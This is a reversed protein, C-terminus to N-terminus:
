VQSEGRSLLSVSSRVYDIFSAVVAIGVVVWMVELVMRLPLERWYTQIVMLFLAITSAGGMTVTKLKGTRRAALTFGRRALMTRLTAITAERYFMVLLLWLPALRAWMLCLYVSVHCVIDALPDLLKGTPTVTDTRRALLGDVMDTAEQLLLVVLAASLLPASAHGPSWDPQGIGLVILIVLLPSLALRVLTLRTAGTLSPRDM